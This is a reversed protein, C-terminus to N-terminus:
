KSLCESPFFITRRVRAPSCANLMWSKKAQGNRESSGCHGTPWTALPLLQAQGAFRVMLLPTQTAGDGTTSTAGPFSAGHLLESGNVICPDLVTPRPTM